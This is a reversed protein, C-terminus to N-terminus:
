DSDDRHSEFTVIIADEGKHLSNWEDRTMIRQQGDLNVTFLNPDDPDEWLVYLKNGEPNAAKELKNIRSNMGRM